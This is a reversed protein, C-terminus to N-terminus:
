ENSNTKEVIDIFIENFGPILEEVSILEISPLLEAIVENISCDLKKKLHWQVESDEDFTKSSLLDFCRPNSPISGRGIVKLEGKKYSHQIDKKAGSLVLSARNILAIHDCIEEVSEMRHTSFLITTGQKKLDLIEEKLLQANIPDFGTFPEDLILLDPQHVITSIFQAKQQMGKSLEEVPKNWWEKIDFKIFLSKLREQAQGASLGKLQALYMLQEGVKMKKYLGREEPLYGVRQIHDPSLLEGDFYVEGEDPATIQNLIRIFTTKGAGNPGLLGFIQGRPIELNLHKLAQYQDYNKCVNLARILPTIKQIFNHM